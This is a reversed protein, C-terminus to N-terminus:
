APWRGRRFIVSVFSGGVRLLWEGRVNLRQHSIALIKVGPAGRLLDVIWATATSAPTCDDLVLLMAKRHLYDVLQAFSSPVDRGLSFRLADALTVTLHEPADDFRLSTYCVGDPFLSAYQTAAQVALRTKGIGGPGLVTLLRCAPDGFLEGIRKLEEERGIFPTLTAPAEAPERLVAAREPRLAAGALIQDYLATTENEPLVGLEAALTRRAIEYQSLAASRQGSLLLARM